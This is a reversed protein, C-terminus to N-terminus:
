RRGGLTRRVHDKIKDENMPRAHAMVDKAYVDGLEYGGACQERTIPSFVACFWRAFPKFDDKQWKKLVWWEWSGDPTRWIEYPDDIPRTKAYPNRM